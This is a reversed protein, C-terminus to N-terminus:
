QPALQDLGLGLIRQGRQGEAVQIQNEAVLPLEVGPPKLRRQLPVLQQSVGDAHEQGGAVRRGPSM